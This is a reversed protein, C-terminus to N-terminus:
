LKLKNKTTSVKTQKQFAQKGFEVQNLCEVKKLLYYKKRLLINMNILNGSSLVSMKTAERTIDYQLRMELRIM